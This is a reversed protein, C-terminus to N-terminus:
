GTSKAHSAKTIRQDIRGEMWCGDDLEESVYFFKIRQGRKITAPDPQRLQDQLKSVGDYSGEKPDSTTTEEGKRIRLIRKTWSPM